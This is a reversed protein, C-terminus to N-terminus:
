TCRMCMELTDAITTPLRYSARLTGPLFPDSTVARPVFPHNLGNVVLAPADELALDLWGLIDVSEANPPELVRVEALRASLMEIAVAGGISVDLQENLEGFRGLVRGAAELALGTRQRGSGNQGVDTQWGVGYLTALWQGVVMSWQSISQERTELCALWQTVFEGLENALPM